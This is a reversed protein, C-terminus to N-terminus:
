SKLFVFLEKDGKAWITKIEVQFKLQQNVSFIMILSSTSIMKDYTKKPGVTYPYTDCSSWGILETCVWLNIMRATKFHQFCNKTVSNFM